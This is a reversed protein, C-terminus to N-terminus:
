PTGGSAPPNASDAPTSQPMPSYRKIADQIYGIISEKVYVPVQENRIIQMLAEGDTKICKDILDYQSYSVASAESGYIGVAKEYEGARLWTLYALDFRKAAVYHAALEGAADTVKWCADVKEAQPSRDFKAIAQELAEQLQAETRGQPAPASPQKTDGESATPPPNTENNPVTTTVQRFAPSPLVYRGLLFSGACITIIISILLSRKTTNM